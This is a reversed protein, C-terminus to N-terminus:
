RGMEQLLQAMQLELVALRQEATPAPEPQQAQFAEVRAIEEPTMETLIGNVIKKM